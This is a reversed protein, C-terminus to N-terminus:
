LAQLRKWVQPALERARAALREEDMTLIQKNRMLIKGRCVTTDVVSDTMGFILHGLFNSEDMPTPPIYDLIAMDAPRGEALEGLRIGFQREALDANNQLLLQPAETFAVRPDRNDLRHLLYAARMQTLMDSNMGDTGLGVLIGKGLMKLIQTVGVANNMNSEPNHVISTRTDAVIDMEEEDIHVCHVFISKEGTVNLRDLRKVTPVGYKELSDQRDAADEAVHIHCGVGADRAIGVCKEVTDDAVTFSAHLGMMAAIQGDGKGVKKIFRENERIGEGHVNRDSVEYCLSARVGAQRVASEIIDLSGDSASPSAHHDIITTTGNRISEILPIQASLLIDDGVIARDVKWWLRELVEVFNSAPEGPIAMGRALTSYFHHHACIFGPLVVKNSCDVSEADPYKQKMEAAAGVAIINEGDTVVSGNWLVRNNKGLTVVIGNEFRTTM